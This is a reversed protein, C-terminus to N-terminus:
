QTHSMTDARCLSRIQTHQTEYVLKKCVARKVADSLTSIGPITVYSCSNLLNAHDSPIAPPEPSSVVYRFEGYDVVTKRAVLEDISPSQSSSTM